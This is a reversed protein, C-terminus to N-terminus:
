TGTSSGVPVWRDGWRNSFAFDTVPKRSLKSYQKAKVPWGVAILAALAMGAEVGLLRDVAPQEAALLTTLASGLGENTCGLLMNQVFPYVSGGGVVSPRDLESDTIALTALSTYVVLLVPVHELASSFQDTRDLRQRAANTGHEMLHGSDDGQYGVVGERAHDVYASWQRRHLEAVALRLDPDTIVVVRWGQRNGGSSAFRANDLVREIISPDVPDPEFYRCSPTTRMADYLEM